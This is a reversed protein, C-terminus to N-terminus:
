LFGCFAFAAPLVTQCVPCLLIFILLTSHPPEDLLPLSPTSHPPAPYPAPFPPFTSFSVRQQLQRSSGKEITNKKGHAVDAQRYTRVTSAHRLATPPCSLFRSRSEHPAHPAVSSFSDPPQPLAYLTFSTFSPPRKKAKTRRWRASSWATRSRLMAGRSQEVTAGRGVRGLPPTRVFQYLRPSLRSSNLFPGRRHILGRQCSCWSTAGDKMGCHSLDSLLLFLPGVAAVSPSLHIFLRSTSSVDHERTGKKRKDEVVRLHEGRGWVPVRMCLHTRAPAGWVVHGALCMLSHTCDAAYFPLSPAPLPPTLSVCRRQQPSHTVARIFSSHHTEPMESLSLPGDGKQRLLCSACVCGHQRWAPRSDAVCVFFPSIASRPAACSSSLQSM